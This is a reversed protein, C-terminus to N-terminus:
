KVTLDFDYTSGDQLEITVVTSTAKSLGEYYGYCGDCIGIEDAQSEVSYREGCSHCNEVKSEQLIAAAGTAVTTGILLGLIFKKM